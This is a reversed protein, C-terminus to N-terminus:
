LKNQRNNMFRSQIHIATQTIQIVPAILLKSVQRMYLTLWLKLGGIWTECIVELKDIHLIEISNSLRLRIRVEVLDATDETYGYLAYYFNLCYFYKFLEKKYIKM